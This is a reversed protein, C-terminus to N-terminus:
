VFSILHYNRKGKRLVLYSGDILLSSRILFHTDVIRENNLYIGGSEIEKRASGKSTSLMTAVLLDVLSYGTSDLLSKSLESSPADSFIDVLTAKDWERIEHSFLTESIKKAKKLEETGHVLLTLENALVQQALRKEPENQTSKKLEEIHELSLFTFYNLYPIVDADSTQIFFQYFHFPSTKFADLWIAGKETKGFKTGDAKTILPHTLGFVEENVGMRRILEIGATINGWQESGGVQLRCNYKQHLVKFDYAQLLMYSFETYSIGQERDELRVKVSDKAIMYNVTFHKGIDRLFPVVSMEDYWDSNNVIEVANKGSFDLFKSIVKRIGSLNERMQDNGLLSREQSKGSPDGIMGTAGGLLVIPRHGALQFRKLVLLPLLNGIHLSNSTPDFGTYLTVCGQDLVQSMQPATMQKILGRNQLEILIPMM